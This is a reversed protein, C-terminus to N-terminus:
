AGIEGNVEEYKFVYKVVNLYTVILSGSLYVDEAETMSLVYLEEVDLPNVSSVGGQSPIGAPFAWLFKACVDFIENWKWPSKVFGNM